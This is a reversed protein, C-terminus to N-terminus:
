GGGTRTPGQVAIGDSDVLQMTVGWGGFDESVALWIENDGARLPLVLEDFLGVTGLFKYDRSRWQDAGRYIPRGNLYVHVRDSFGFRIRAPGATSARITVAAFATNNTATRTRLRAINAIGLVDTELTAWQLERVLRANLAETSDLRSEPFPTSVRWHRVIGPPEESNEAADEADAIAPATPTIVVNAFRAPAGSSTLGISGAIPERLLTSFLLPKGDVFAQARGDRIRLEVHIWRDTRITVPLGFRPGSYLQWGTVGHFVPTYQSADPYDSVFPRLYFHEYNDKDVARFAVGHFGLAGSAHMDFHITGDRLQVGTLWAIGNRLYLGDRGEHQEVRFEQADVQWRTEDWPMQAASHRALAALLALALVGSTECCSKRM